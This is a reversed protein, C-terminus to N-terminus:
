QKELSTTITAKGWQIIPNRRGDETKIIAKCTEVYEINQVNTLTFSICVCFVHGTLMMLHLNLASSLLLITSCTAHSCLGVCFQLFMHVNYEDSWLLLHNWSLFSDTTTPYLVFVWWIQCAVSNLDPFLDCWSSIYHIPRCWFSIVWTMWRRYNLWTLRWWRCSCTETVVAQEYQATIIALSTGTANSRQCWCVAEWYEGPGLRWDPRQPCEAANRQEPTASDNIVEPLNEDAENCFLIKEWHCHSGPKITCMWLVYGLYWPSRAQM